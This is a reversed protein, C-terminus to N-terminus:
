KKIDIKDVKSEVIVDINRILVSDDKNLQIKRFGVECVKPFSYQIKRTARSEFVEVCLKEQKTYNELKATVSENRVDAMLLVGIYEDDIKLSLFSYARRQDDFTSFKTNIEESQIHTFKLAIYVVAFILAFVIAGVLSTLGIWAKKNKNLLLLNNNVKAM